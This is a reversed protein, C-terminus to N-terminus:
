TLFCCLKWRGGPGSAPSRAGSAALEAPPALVARAAAAASPPPPSSPRLGPKSLPEIGGGQEAGDSASGDAGLRLDVRYNLDGFWFCHDFQTAVDLKGRHSKRQDGIASATEALIERCM